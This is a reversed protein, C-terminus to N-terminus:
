ENPKIIQGQKNLLFSYSFLSGKKKHYNILKAATSVSSSKHHIIIVKPKTPEPM